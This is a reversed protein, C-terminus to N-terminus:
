QRRYTEGSYNEVRNNGYGKRLRPCDRKIHNPSSCEYCLRERGRSGSRGDRRYPTNSRENERGRSQSRNRGYEGDRKGNFNGNFRNRSGDRGEYRGRSASRDQSYHGRSDSRGQSYRGRSASRNDNYRGRSTNRDNNFRGRSSDRQYNDYRGRSADRQGRDYREDRPQRDYHGSTPRRPPYRDASPYRTYDGRPPSRRRDDFQDRRSRPAPIPAEVKRVVAVTGETEEFNEQKEAFEIAEALTAPGQATVFRGIEKNLGKKFISLMEEELIETRIKNGGEDGERLKLSRYGWQRIRSVYERVSEGSQQKNCARMKAGCEEPSLKVDFRSELEKRLTSWPAAELQPLADLFESAQGIIKLKAVEALQEDDCQALKGASQVAKTFDKVKIGSKEGNFQPILALAASFSMMGRDRTRYEDRDDRQLLDNSGLGNEGPM